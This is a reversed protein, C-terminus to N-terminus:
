WKHQLVFLCFGSMLGFFLPGGGSLRVAWISSGSTRAPTNSRGYLFSCESSVGGVYGFM